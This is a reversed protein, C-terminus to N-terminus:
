SEIGSGTVVFHPTDTRPDFLRWHEHPLSDYPFIDLFLNGRLAISLSGAAGAETKLVTFEVPGDGFLLQVRKDRLNLDRDWDFGPPIEEEGSYDAPYYLDRSGVIVRDERVIRWACQVHLAFEGIERTAGRFDRVKSRAGFQFSALDAARTCRWM